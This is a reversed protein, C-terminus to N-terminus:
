AERPQAYMLRRGEAGKIAKAARETDEVGLRSRTNYRFEFESLYRHLHAESCHQYVGTMGRKFVSFVNEVTNSHVTADDEYRVYEKASHRVTRHDAFEKGTETYLRSEDTHLASKRDVNRVLVDRVQDATANEVHFIRVEGGREVLAVVPNKSQPGKRKIYPRKERERTKSVRPTSTRGIYTEDAEVIKGEGGIPGAEDDLKMAERIRHAMFWATRYSGLGLTRMLQHASVGKKSSAMLHFALVWKWLPVHSREMVGGVTVTFHERCENCQYLGPRHSKGQLRTIKTGDANGCHPCVPGNPWRIAELHARAAEDDHFIPDTLNIPM